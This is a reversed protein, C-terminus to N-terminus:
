PLRSAGWRRWQMGGLESVLVALLILGGGLLTTRTLRERGSLAGYLATFVPELSYIVAARVARTRAQAWTQLGIAGATAVVGCYVVAGVLAGSLHLHRDVFPLSAASVGAVVWLQVAVLPIAPFRAAYRETLTIHFAYAVACGVTLVDGKLYASAGPASSQTFIRLGVAALLVAVMTPPSPRRRFVLISALPVLVVSLGTIFASRSPTTSSLGWTQLAFGLFLLAGLSAGVVALKRDLLKRRALLTLVCAGLGFRLALFSMPDVDGLADKILLFTSGWVATIAILVFDAYNKGSAPTASDM